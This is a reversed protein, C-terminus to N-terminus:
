DALSGVVRSYKMSSLLVHKVSSKLSKM